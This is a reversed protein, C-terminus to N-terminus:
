TRNISKLIQLLPSNGHATLLILLFLFNLYMVSWIQRVAALVVLTSCRFVFRKTIHMSGKDASFFHEGKVAM